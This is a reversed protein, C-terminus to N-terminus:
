RGKRDKCSRRGDCQESCCLIRHKAVIAFHEIPRAHNRRCPPSPQVYRNKRISVTGIGALLRLMMKLRSPYYVACRDKFRGSRRGNDPAFCVHHPCRPFDTSSGSRVDAVSNCDYCGLWKTRTRLGGHGLYGIMVRCCSFLIIRSTRSNGSWPTSLTAKARHPLSHNV